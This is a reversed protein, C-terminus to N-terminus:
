FFFCDILFQCLSSPWNRAREHIRNFKLLGFLCCGGFKQHNYFFSINVLSVRSWWLIIQRCVCVCCSNMVYARDYVLSNVCLSKPRNSTYAQIYWTGVYTYVNYIICMHTYTDFSNLIAADCARWIIAKIIKSGCWDLPIYM